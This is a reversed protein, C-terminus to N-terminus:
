KRRHPWVEANVLNPPKRGALAAFCNRAAVMGMAVRTELSASGLHPLLVANELKMLSPEVDPEHEYVDIGAAAIQGTALARALAKENVIPGRAANVLVATRKMQRFEAAGMLHRTKPLLPTHVTVIDANRLLSKFPAYRVGLEREVKAPPRFEDYYIVKMGFGRARRAVAKGIRGMGLVGLTKGYVDLGLLQTPKWGKWKGARLFREGEGVRRSATLILTFTLDATTENLVEPTNTVPIGRASAAHLDVNNYGVGYNAIVRLRPAADMVKDDIPDSVTPILADVDRVAKLLKRRSILEESPHIELRSREKIYKEAKEPIRSCLFVRPKKM